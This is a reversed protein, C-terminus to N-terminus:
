RSSSSAISRGGGRSGTVILGGNSRQAFATVAREIEGPDAVDGPSLEVGLSPAMAQIAGFQGPGGAISPDRLIAARTVRPAIEKLLELWKGSLAYEFATFGTVNGGPRAHSEVYGAGVADAVVAFVIPITRTVQRLSAVVPSTFAMLVDPALAVLEVAYKRVLDADSAGWRIDVRINRGDSWGLPPPRSCNTPCPSASCAHCAALPAM